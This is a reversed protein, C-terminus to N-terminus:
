NIELLILKSDYPKLDEDFEHPHIIADKNIDLANFHAKLEINDMSINRIIFHSKAEFFGIAGDDNLDIKNFLNLPTYYDSCKENSSWCQTERNLKCYYKNFIGRERQCASCHTCHVGDKFGCHCGFANCYHGCAGVFIGSLCIGGRHDGDSPDSVCCCSSVYQMDKIGMFTIFMALKLIEM